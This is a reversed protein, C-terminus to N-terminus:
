PTGPTFTFKGAAPWEVESAIPSGFEDAGIEDPLKLKVTGAWIAGEDTNPTYTLPQETLDNTYLFAYLGAAGLDNDLQAGFADARVESASHTHGDLYTTAEGIEEYNHIIKAGKCEASFDLPVTGVTVTGPGLKTHNSM